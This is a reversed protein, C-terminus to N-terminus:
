QRNAVGEAPPCADAARTWMHALEPKELRVCIDALRRRVAADTPKQSAEQGLEALEQFLRQSQELRRFQEAADAQRGLHEYVQALQYRCPCDHPEKQLAKELLAAATAFDGTDARIQARLRQGRASLPGLTGAQDLAHVAEEPKRLGYLSEARLELLAVTAAGSEALYNDLYPLAEAYEHQQVLVETLEPVIERRVKPSLRLGLAARYQDAALGAAGMDKHIVGMFRHPQGDGADLEVWKTLHALANSMAGRDYYIAALGRRADINEPRVSVVHLLFREAEVLSHMQLFKLGYSLSAEALVNAQDHNIHNYERIASNLENVSLYVQGRLLHAHDPYGAAELAAALREAERVDGQLIAKQGQTLRYEPRTVRYRWYAAASAVLVSVLAAFLIYHIRNM